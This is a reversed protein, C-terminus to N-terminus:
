YRSEPSIEQFDEEFGGDPKSNWSSFFVSFATKKQTMAGQLAGCSSRIVSAETLTETFDDVNGINEEFYDDAPPLVQAERAQQIVEKLEEGSDYDEFDDFYQTTEEESLIGTIAEEREGQIDEDIESDSSEDFDDSYDLSDDAEKVQALHQHGEGSAGPDKVKVGAVKEAHSDLETRFSHKTGPTGEWAKLRMNHILHAASTAQQKLPSNECSQDSCVPSRGSGLQQRYTETEAIFTALHEKVFPKNLITSASPRNDPSKVLITNVIDQLGDSFYAPLPEFEAKVIKYFLSILSTGSFPPHLACMEYLLCGLAWIDSKSNYPIDQCLEPSLYSPTGVVTKAVDITNDMIKSIGFDGIKVVNKKTLFVNETKLDRHLIKQSHIYQVAIAIQVFWQMIQKEKLKIGTSSATQIQDALTGGDCYDQIICVHHEDHHVFSDYFAVIHPHKLRSLISAEKLVADKTRTKRKEDIEIKKMAYLRKSTTHRVLYVSGCAGLGLRQVCEYQEM